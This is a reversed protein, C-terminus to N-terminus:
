ERFEVFEMLAFVWPTDIGMGWRVNAHVGCRNEAANPKALLWFSWKVIRSLFLSSLFSSPDLTGNSKGVSILAM